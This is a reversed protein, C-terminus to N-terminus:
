IEEAEVADSLERMQLQNPSDWPLEGGVQNGLLLSDIAFDVTQKLHGAVADLLDVGSIRAEVEKRVTLQM